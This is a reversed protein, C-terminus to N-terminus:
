QIKFRIKMAEIVLDKNSQDLFDIDNLDVKRQNSFLHLALTLMFKESRSWPKSVKMLKDQDILGEQLNFYEDTLYSKLESHNSFLYIVVAWQPDHNVLQLTAM